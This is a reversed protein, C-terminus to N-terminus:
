DEEETADEEVGVDVCGEEEIGVGVVEVFKVLEEELIGEVGVGEFEGVGVVDVGDGQGEEVEVNVGGLQFKRRAM